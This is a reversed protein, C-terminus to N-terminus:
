NCSQGYVGLLAALDSLDVDADGDLDGHTYEVGASQGYHGLLQALDSLSIVADGDLDGPCTSLTYDIRAIFCDGGWDRNNHTSTGGNFDRDFADSSTPLEPSATGIGLIVDDPTILLSGLNDNASGGFYTSAYLMTLQPDLRTLFSEAAYQNNGGSFERDLGGITTPFDSSNTSGAVLVYGCDDIGLATGNEWSSGGLYTSALLNQLASDFKAVYSDDGVNAGGAGNYDRDYAGPTTPFPAEASASATHGTVYVNQEADIALAYGFEWNDGGLYTSAVLSSLDPSLKSVFADYSGGNYTPSYAGSSTPFDQSTTWGPMCLNGAQDFVLMEPFDDGHGGLYTAAVITTLNKDFKAAFVDVGQAGGTYKETQYAGPTVPFSSATSATQGLVYVYDSVLICHADDKLTGGLYTSAVLEDLNPSLKAIFVDANGGYTSDYSVGPTVPFDESLTQAVVYVYGEDDLALGVGPWEGEHTTGGIYTAALLTSLDPTLKAVFVDRGGARAPQCGDATGPIDDSNTRGAIYINGQADRATPIEYLGDGRTGGVYTALFANLDGRADAIERFAAGFILAFCLLRICNGWSLKSTTPNM